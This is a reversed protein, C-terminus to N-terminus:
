KTEQQKLLDGLQAFPKVAFSTKNKDKKEESKEPSNVKTEQEEILDGYVVTKQKSHVESM